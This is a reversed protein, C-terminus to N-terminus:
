RLCIRQNHILGLSAETHCSYVVIVFQDIYCFILIFNVGESKMLRDFIQLLINDNSVRVADTGTDNYKQLSFYKYSGINKLMTDKFHRFITKTAGGGPPDSQQGNLLASEATQNNIENYTNTKTKTRPRM